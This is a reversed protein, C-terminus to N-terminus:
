STSSISQFLLLHPFRSAQLNTCPVLQQMVEEVGPFDAIFMLDNDGLLAYMSLIKGNFKKVLTLAKKTRASSVGKLAETVKRIFSVNYM